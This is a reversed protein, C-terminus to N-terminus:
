NGQYLALAELCQLRHQEGNSPEIKVGNLALGFTAQQQSYLDVAFTLKSLRQELDDGQVHSLALWKPTTDIDNFHKSVLKHQTRAVHKWSIRSLSEGAIHDKIGEFENLQDCSHHQQGEGEDISLLPVHDDIPEPYILLELDMDLQTWCRLLGLPFYSIITVRQPNIKGRQTAKFPVQVKDHEKALELTTSRQNKFRFTLANRNICDSLFLAIHSSDNAYMPLVQTSKITLGSLNSYSYIISTIFFGILTFALLLILNNQYNTGLTYLFICVFLYVFGFRSPFIFISKQNLTHQSNAPSRANLWRQLLPRKPSQDM